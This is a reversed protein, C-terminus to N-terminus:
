FDETLLLRQNKYTVVGAELLEEYARKIKEHLENARPHSKIVAIPWGDLKELTRSWIKKGKLNIKKIDKQFPDDLTIIYDVRELLLMRIAQEVTNTSATNYKKEERIVEFGGLPFGRKIAVDKGVLKDLSTVPESRLGYIKLQITTQPIPFLFQDDTLPNAGYAAIAVNEPFLRQHIRAYPVSEMKLNLGAQSYLRNSLRAHLGTIPTEASDWYPPYYLTYHTLDRELAPELSFVSLQIGILIFFLVFRKIGFMDM